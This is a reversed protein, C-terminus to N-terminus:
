KFDSDEFRMKFLTTQPLEYHNTTTQPPKHHNTTTRLLENEYHNTTTQPLKERFNELFYLSGSNLWDSDLLILDIKFSVKHHNTINEHNQHKVHKTMTRSTEYHKTMTRSSTINWWPEHHKMMTRSTEDHNTINQWPEHHKTMTWTKDHNTINWNWPM